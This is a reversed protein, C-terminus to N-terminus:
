PISVAKKRNKLESFSFPFTSEVAKIETNVVLIRARQVNNIKLSESESMSPKEFGNYKENNTQIDIKSVKIIMGKAYKLTVPFDFFYM